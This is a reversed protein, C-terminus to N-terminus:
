PDYFFDPKFFYLICFILFNYSTKDIAKKHVADPSFNPTTSTRRFHLVSTAM